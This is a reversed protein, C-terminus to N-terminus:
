TKHISRGKQMKPLLIDEGVDLNDGNEEDSENEM